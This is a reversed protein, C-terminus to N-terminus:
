GYGHIGDFYTNYANESNEKQYRKNNSGKIGTFCLNALAFSRADM